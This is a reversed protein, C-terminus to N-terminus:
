QISKAAERRLKGLFELFKAINVDIGFQYVFSSSLYSSLLAKLYSVPINKMVAEPGAVDILLKPIIKNLLLYNRLKLDNEWLEM